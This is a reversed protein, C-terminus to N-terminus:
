QADWRAAGLKCRARLGSSSDGYGSMDCECGETPDTDTNSKHLYSTIPIAPNYVKETAMMRTLAHRTLLSLLDRAWALSFTGM